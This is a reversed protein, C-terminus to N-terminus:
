GYWGEMKAYYPDGNVVFTRRAMFIETRNDLSCGGRISHVQLDNNSDRLEIYGCNHSPLMDDLFLALTANSGSVIADKLNDKLELVALSDMIQLNLNMKTLDSTQIGSIFFYTAAVLGIAAMIAIIADLTFIYGKM